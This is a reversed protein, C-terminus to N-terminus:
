FIGRSFSFGFSLKTVNRNYDILSEGYGNFLKLYWFTAKSGLFPYSWELQVAGRSQGGKNFNYRVLGGFQHRRYLYRFSIDGYGMYDVIDPNDDGAENPDPYLIPNGSADFTYGRYYDASKDAEPIRYWVRATLFLNEHQFLGQLYLRNWSRSRYGEQGNSQHLFGFRVAKLGVSENITPPTPFGVFVEPMYNTERFPSSASYLQWFSHQTYAATIIEGFGFLNYTLNKKLSFQFEVETHSGYTGYRDYLNTQMIRDYLAYSKYASPHRAYLNSAYAAPLLYNTKYPQLGFFRGSAIESLLSRTEKTDTELSALMAENAAQSSADSFQAKLRQLFDDSFLDAQGKLIKRTYAYSGAARRYWEAAKKYDQPVGLGKEYLNALQYMAAKNGHKALRKLYPLAETFRKQQMLTRAKEFAVDAPIEKPSEAAWLAGAAIGLAIAVATVIRKM